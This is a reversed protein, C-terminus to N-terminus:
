EVETAPRTWFPSINNTAIDQGPLWMPPTSPDGPTGTAVKSKSIAGIWIQKCQTVGNGLCSPATNAATLRHGYDRESSFVIWYYETTQAPAWHPWTIDADVTGGNLATLDTVWAGAADALMLRQGASAAVQTNRWASRAGNFVILKGDDSFSPFFFNSYTGGPLTIPQSILQQPEGFVHQGGVYEYSMTALAGDSLDIWQGPHPTSAFVVRTGDASWDAMLASRPAGPGHTSVENLNSPVATGTDPDYLALTGDAMSVIALSQADTPFPNGVPAFTTYSGRIAKDNANVPETWAQAVPDYRMFGAYLNNCDNAVCRSYGLRSGARSLSHCSTCDDKVLTPPGVSGFTQSMINGQSSAWYYIASKDVNDRSVTISLAPSVYRTTPDAQLLGEVAIGLEGGAASGAVASWDAVGLAAELDSSYVDIDLFTSTLAVHFLDNGAATWQFEIPPINAPAVARDFPYQVQPTRAPDMAATAADFLGPAGPPTSGGTVVRGKLVVALDASGALGGCSVGVTTKGGHPGVTVTAGSASGFIVSIELACTSTIDTRQGASVGFVQYVQQASGGLPVVLSAQPPEVEIREFAGTSGDGGGSDKKDDCAFLSLATAFCVGLRGALLLRM